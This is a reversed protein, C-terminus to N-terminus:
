GIDNGRFIYNIDGGGNPVMTIKGKKVTKGKRVVFGEIVCDHGHPVHGITDGVRWKGNPQYDVAFRRTSNGLVGYGTM